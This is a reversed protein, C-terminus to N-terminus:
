EYTFEIIFTEGLDSSVDLTLESYGNNFINSIVRNTDGNINNVKINKFKITIQNQNFNPDAFALKIKKLGKNIKMLFLSAKSTVIDEFDENSNIQFTLSNSQDFNSFGYVTEYNNVKYSAVHGTDNKLIKVPSDSVFNLLDSKTTSPLIIYQFSSSDDGTPNIGHYREIYYYSRKVQLTDGNINIDKYKGTNQVFKINFAGNISNNGSANNGLLSPFIYGSGKSANEVGEIFISSIDTTYDSPNINKILKSNVNNNFFVKSGGGSTTKRYDVITKTTYNNDSKVNSVMHIISGDTIMWSKYAELDNNQLGILHNATLSFNDLKVSNSFDNIGYLGSNKGVIYNTPSISTELPMDTTTTGPLRKYDATPWYFDHFTNTHDPHNLLLGYAQYHGKFNEGNISEYNKTRKSYVSVTSTNTTERFIIRDSIPYISIGNFPYQPTITNDNQIEDNLSSIYANYTRRKWDYLGFNNIQHKAIGQIKDSFGPKNICKALLLAQNYIEKGAYFDESKRSVGRGIFAQLGNGKYTFPAFNKNFIDFLFDETDPDILIGASKFLIFLKVADQWFVRGYGGNYAFGYHRFDGSKLPGDNMGTSLVMQSKYSLFNNNFDSVNNKFANRITSIYTLNSKNADKAIQNQPQGAVLPDHLRITNDDPSYYISEDVLKNLIESNLFGKGLTAINAIRVGCGIEWFWWNGTYTNTLHSYRNTFLWNLASNLESIVNSNNYYLSSPIVVSKLIYEIRLFSDRMNQPNSSDALDPWLFTRDSAKNLSSYVNKALGDIDGTDVDSVGESGGSAIDDPNSGQQENDLGAILAPSYGILFIKNAELVNNPTIVGTSEGSIKCINYVLKAKIESSPTFITSPLLSEESLSATNKFNINESLFHLRALSDIKFIRGDHNGSFNFNSTTGFFSKKNQILDTYTGSGQFEINNNFIKYFSQTNENLDDDIDILLISQSTFNLIFKKNLTFYSKDSIFYKIGNLVNLDINLKSSQPNLRNAIIEIKKNPLFNVEASESVKIKSFSNHLNWIDGYFSSQEYTNSLIFQKSLLKSGTPINIISGNPLFIQSNSQFIFNGSSMEKQFKPSEVYFSGKPIQIYHDNIYLYIGNSVNDTLANINVWKNKGNRFQVQDTENNFYITGSLLMQNTPNKITSSDNTNPLILGSKNGELTNNIELIGNAQATNIGVQSFFPLSVFLFIFIKFKLIINM